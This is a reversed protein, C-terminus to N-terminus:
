FQLLNEGIFWGFLQKKGTFWGFNWFIRHVMAHVKRETHVMTTWNQENKRKGLWGCRAGGEVRAPGGARSWGATVFPFSFQLL